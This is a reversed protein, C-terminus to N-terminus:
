YVIYIQVACIDFEGKKKKFVHIFQAFEFSGLRMYM